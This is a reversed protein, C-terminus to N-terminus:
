AGRRALGQQQMWPVREALADQMTEARATWTGSRSAKWRLSFYGDNFGQAHLAELAAVAEDATDFLELLPRKHLLEEFGRTAIMPRCAALHEYFRTSSGSYTPERRRYPLVAVDFARAYSALEGYPQKGVFHTRQVGMVNARARAQVADSIEMTTPGVFVWHLWPTRVVIQEILVWDMNSALNGIVGAVPRDVAHLSAPLNSPGQPPQPLLNTARTANPLVVIKRSDCGAEGTLYDALRNSNPCVLTAVLCMRRDLQEVKKRNAGAYEAILDTLWYVVPGPWLEAVEAFYPITCILPTTRPDPCRRSLREVIQPATRALKSFPFRSYGHLVPLCRVRLDSGPLVREAEAGVAVSGPFWTRQPEWAVVDTQEALAQGLELDLVDSVQLLHWTSAGHMM